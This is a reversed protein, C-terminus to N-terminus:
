VEKTLYQHTQPDFPITTLLSLRNNLQIPNAPTTFKMPDTKDM